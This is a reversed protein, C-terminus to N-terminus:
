MPLHSLVIPAPSLPAQVVVGLITTPRHSDCPQHAISDTSSFGVPGTTIEDLVPRDLHAKKKQESMGVISDTDSEGLQVGSARMDQDDGVTSQFKQLNRVVVRSSAAVTSPIRNDVPDVSLAGHIM